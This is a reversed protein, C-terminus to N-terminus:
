RTYEEGVHASTMKLDVLAPIVWERVVAGSWWEVVDVGGRKPWDSEPSAVPWHFIKCDLFSLFSLSFERRFAEHASPQSVM